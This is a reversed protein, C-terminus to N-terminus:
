LDLATEKGSVYAIFEEVSMLWNQQQPTFGTTQLDLPVVLQVREAQMEATQDVSVGPQLTLLHKEQIRDAENIIQRWRDKLTTKSALMTLRTDPYQRDLYATKSPFLFDPEKKGETKAKKVFRVNNARLIAEIHEELSLGARSKRRNNVSLSLKLFKDVDVNQSEDLFGNAIEASIRHKELSRFVKHEMSVWRLLTADPANVPDCDGAIGRAFQALETTSPWTPGPYQESVELVLDSDTQTVQIGLLELLSESALEDRGPKKKLDPTVLLGTPAPTSDFIWELQRLQMSDQQAIAVIVSGDHKLAVFLTDGAMARSIVPDATAPYYLRYESRTPNMERSDYWTLTSELMVPQETDSDSLYVFYASYYSKGVPTGFLKRFEAAGNFEHQNSKLRNVDVEALRKRAFSSFYDGIRLM